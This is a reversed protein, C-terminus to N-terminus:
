IPFSPTSVWFLFKFIFSEYKLSRNCFFHRWYIIYIHFNLSMTKKSRLECARTKIFIEFFLLYFLFDLFITSPVHVHTRVVHCFDGLFSLHLPRQLFFDFRLTTFLLHIHELYYWFKYIKEYVMFGWWFTEQLWFVNEHKNYFFFGNKLNNVIKCFLYKVLLM